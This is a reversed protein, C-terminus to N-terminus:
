RNLSNLLSFSLVEYRPVADSLVSHEGYKSGNGARHM